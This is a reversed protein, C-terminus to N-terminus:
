HSTHAGVMRQDRQLGPRSSGACECVSGAAPSGPDDALSRRETRVYWANHTLLDAVTASPSVWPLDANFSSMPSMLDLAGEDMLLAIAIPILPKTACYAPQLTSRAVPAGGVVEGLALDYIVGGAHEIFLQASTGYIDDAILAELASCRRAM